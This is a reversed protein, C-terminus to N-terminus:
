WTPTIRAQTDLLREVCKVMALRPRSSLSAKSRGEIIEELWLQSAGATFPSSFSSRHFLALVCFFLDDAHQLLHFCAPGHLLQRPFEANRFGPCTFLREPFHQIRIGSFVSIQM